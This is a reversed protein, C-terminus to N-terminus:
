RIILKDVQNKIRVFYAGPSITNTFIQTTFDSIEKSLVKKGTVSYIEVMYKGSEPVKITVFGNAPNPYMTFKEKAIVEVNAVQSNTASPTPTMTEFDGTGNPFRGYSIDDEQNTFHSLVPLVLPM